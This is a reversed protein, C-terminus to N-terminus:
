GLQVQPPADRQLLIRRRLNLEAGDAPRNEDPNAIPM